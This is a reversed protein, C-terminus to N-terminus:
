KNAHLFKLLLKRTARIDSLADHADIEIGYHECVTGLKHNPLDLKGKFDLIRIIHLPDLSKWNVWSGLFPDNCSDFFATLFGMDFGVNYGAIYFKDDKNYKDCHNNFDLLLRKHATIADMGKMLEKKTKGIIELAQPDINELRTPKILLNNELKVEGNVEIIYALQVIDHKAKDIGTTEVDFYFVKKNKM